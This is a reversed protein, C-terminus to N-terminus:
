NTQPQDPVQDQDIAAETNGCQKEFPLIIRIIVEDNLPKSRVYKLLSRFQKPNIVPIGDPSTRKVYWGPLAVVAMVNVSEGATDGIWNSLWSAQREAQNVTNVDTGHPYILARGNYEVVAGFNQGRTTPRSRAKTEVSFVGKPGVVIHDIRFDDAQFDHYVCYGELM